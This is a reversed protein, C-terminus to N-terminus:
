CPYFRECMVIRVLGHPVGLVIDIMPSPCSSVVEILDSHTYFMLGILDNKVGENIASSKITKFTM